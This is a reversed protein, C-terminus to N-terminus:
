GFGHDAPHWKHAFPADMLNFYHRIEFNLAFTVRIDCLSQVKLCQLTVFPPVIKEGRKMKLTELKNINKFFEDAFMNEIHKNTILNSPSASETVKLHLQVCM